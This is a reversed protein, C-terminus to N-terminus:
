DAYELMGCANRVMVSSTAAELRIQVTSGDSFKLTLLADAQQVTLVTRGAIVHSLKQNPFMPNM